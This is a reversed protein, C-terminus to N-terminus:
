GIQAPMTLEFAASSLESPRKNLRIPGICRTLRTDVGFTHLLHVRGYMRQSSADLRIVSM